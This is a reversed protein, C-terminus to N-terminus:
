EDDGDGGVFKEYLSLYEDRLKQSTELAVLRERIITEMRQGFHVAKNPDNEDDWKTKGDGAPRFNM